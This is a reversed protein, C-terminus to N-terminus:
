HLNDDSDASDASNANASFIMDDYSIVTDFGKNKFYTQTEAFSKSSAVLIFDGGWAGLSKTAGWFDDFYLDQVRPMDLAASIIKEHGHMLFEFEELTTAKTLDRTIASLKVALEAQNSAHQRYFKIGESTSQKRGLYVFSLNDRFSPNFTSSEWKPLDNNNEYFIPGESQACAIDYGSGGLTKFLLEFPSIYAWQAVNYILTSSSGLGWNLPFELQTDVYVSDVNDRLFHVNQKRAQRLIKQLELAEPTPNEDLCDFNWFEFTHEFWCRGDTDYSKWYLKPDYSRRYTVNLYQGKQTPLALALAGNLVFYEGTLLLKGRGYFKQAGVFDNGLRAM